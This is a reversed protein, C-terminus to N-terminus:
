CNEKEEKADKKMVLRRKKKMPQGIENAPSGQVEILAKRHRKSPTTPAPLPKSRTRSSIPPPSSSASSSRTPSPPRSPRSSLGPKSSSNKLKRRMQNKAYKSNPNIPPSAEVLEFVTMNGPEAPPCPTLPRLPPLAAGSSPSPPPLSPPQLSPANDDDPPREIEIPVLPFDVFDPGVATRGSASLKIQPM